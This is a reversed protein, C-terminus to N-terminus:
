WINTGCQEMNPSIEMYSGLINKNTRYELYKKIQNDVRNNHNDGNKQHFRGKASTPQWGGQRLVFMSSNHKKADDYLHWFFSKFFLPTSGEKQGGVGSLVKKTKKTKAPQVNESLSSTVIVSLKVPM